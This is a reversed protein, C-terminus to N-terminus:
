WEMTAALYSCCYDIWSSLDRRMDYKVYDIVYEDNILRMGKQMSEAIKERDCTKLAAEIGNIADNVRKVLVNMLEIEEPIMTNNVNLM